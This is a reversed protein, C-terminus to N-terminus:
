GSAAARIDAILRDVTEPASDWACMLRCGTPPVFTYFEWGRARVREQVAEPLHVFVGNAEVPHMLAVGELGGLGEALRRAMQNAHRANELWLGGELLALWPAAVLRMKSNLQGAQKMRWGFDEALAKDFFILCEGVGLGNKVGGFSLVDVGRRWTMEAPTAGLAAAANAFRAGDMHLRLGHRRALEGFGAIEDLTYLTGLETAQTLSIARAKVHHIGEFRTALDEAAEVTLKAGPLDASLVSAGGSFFGLAGAEDWEIHSFAHAIVAHYPQAIQALGLANAATGNFVFFVACDTEFLDRVAGQARATVEDGGYGIQHGRGNEEVLAALAAPCMGANNDSLFQQKLDGEKSDRWHAVTRRAVAAATKM